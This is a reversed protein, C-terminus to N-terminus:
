SDLRPNDRAMMMMYIYSSGIKCEASKKRKGNEINNNCEFKFNLFFGVLYRDYIFSTQHVDKKKTTLERKM